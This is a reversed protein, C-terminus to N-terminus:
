DDTIDLLIVLGRVEHYVLLVDMQYKKTQKKTKNM